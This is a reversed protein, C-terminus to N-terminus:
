SSAHAMVPAPSCIWSPPNIIASAKEYQRKDLLRSFRGFTNRGFVGNFTQELQQTQGYFLANYIIEQGLIDVLKAVLKTEYPYAYDSHNTANNTNAFYQVMGENLLRNACSYRSPGYRERKIGSQYVYDAQEAYDSHFSAGHILEHYCIIFLTQPALSQETQANLYVVRDNPDYYAPVTAYRRYNDGTLNQAMVDPAVISASVM